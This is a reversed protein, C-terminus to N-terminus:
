QSFRELMTEVYRDHMETMVELPDSVVTVDESEVYDAYMHIRWADSGEDQVAEASFMCRRPVGNNTLWEETYLKRIKM